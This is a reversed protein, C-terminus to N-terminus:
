FIKKKTRKLIVLSEEILHVFKSTLDYTLKVYQYDKATSFPPLDVIQSIELKDGLANIDLVNNNSITPQNDSGDSQPIKFKFDTNVKNKSVSMELM